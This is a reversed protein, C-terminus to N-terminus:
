TLGGHALTVFRNQASDLTASSLVVASSDTINFLSFNTTNITSLKMAENFEVIISMNPAVSIGPAPVVSQVFPPMYQGGTGYNGGNIDVDWTAGGTTFSVEHGGGARNGSISQGGSSKVVSTIVLTYFTNATLSASPTFLIVDTDGAFLSSCGNAANNGCYTAKGAIKTTGDNTTLYVNSGLNAADVDNITTADMTQNLGVRITDSLSVFQAGNPPGSFM